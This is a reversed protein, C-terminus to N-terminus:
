KYKIFDTTFLANDIEDRIQYLSEGKKTYPSEEEGMLKNSIISAKRLLKRINLLAKHKTKNTM